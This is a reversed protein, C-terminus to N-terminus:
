ATAAKHVRRHLVQWNKKKKRLSTFVKPNLGFDLENVRPRGSWAPSPPACPGGRLLSAPATAEAPSCRCVCGARAGAGCSRSRRPGARGAVRRPPLRKGGAGSAGPPPSQSRARPAAPPPSPAPQQLLLPLLLSLSATASAARGPGGAGLSAVHVPCGWPPRCVAAFCQAGSRCIQGLARARAPPGQLVGGGSRQRAGVVQASTREAEGGAQGGGGGKLRPGRPGRGDRTRSDAGRGPGRPLKPTLSNEM